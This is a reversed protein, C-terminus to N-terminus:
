SWSGNLLLLGTGWAPSRSVVWGLPQLAGDGGGPSTVALSNRADRVVVICHAPVVVICHGMIASLLADALQLSFPVGPVLM